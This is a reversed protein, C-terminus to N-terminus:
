KSLLLYPLLIKPPFLDLRKTLHEFYRIMKVVWVCYKHSQVWVVSFYDHPSLKFLRFVNTPPVWNLNERDNGNSIAHDTLKCNGRRHQRQHRRVAGNEAPRTQEHSVFLVLTEPLVHVTRDRRLGAGDRAGVDSPLGDKEPWRVESIPRDIYRCLRCFRYRNNINNPVDHSQDIRLSDSPRSSKIIVIEYVCFIRM